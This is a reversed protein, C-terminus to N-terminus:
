AALDLDVLGVVRQVVQDAPPVLDFAVGRRRAAERANRLARALQADLFTVDTLDVVIQRERGIADLLADRIEWANSLDFEGRLRFVCADGRRGADMYGLQAM